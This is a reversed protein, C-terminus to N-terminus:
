KVIVFYYADDAVVNNESDILQAVICCSGTLTGLPVTNKGLQAKDENPKWGSDVYSEKGNDDVKKNYLRLTLKYDLVDISTDGNTADQGTTKVGVANVTICIDKGYECISMESTISVAPQETKEPEDFVIGGAIAAMVIGNGVSGSVASPVSILSINFVHKTAEVTDFMNSVLSLTVEQRGGSGLPIVFEGDSNQYYPKRNGAFDRAEIYADVPISNRPELVLAASTGLWKSSAASGEPYIVTVTQRTGGPAISMSAATVDTLTVSVENDTLEPANASATAVIFSTDLNPVIEAIVNTCDSFDVIVQYKLDFYAVNDASGAPVSFRNAATGMQVFGGTGYLPIVSEVGSARYSYYVPTGSSKDVLIVTAGEPLPCSFSLQPQAYVYHFNKVDFYATYASDRTITASNSKVQGFVESQEVTSTIAVKKRVGSLAIHLEIKSEVNKNTPIKEVSFSVGGDILQSPGVIKLEHEDPIDTDTQVATANYLYYKEQAWVNIILGRDTALATTEYELGDVGTVYIYVNGEYFLVDDARVWESANYNDTDNYRVYIYYNTYNTTLVLGTDIADEYKAYVEYPEGGDHWVMKYYLINSLQDTVTKIIIKDDKALGDTSKETTYTPKAPNPRDAKKIEFTVYATKDGDEISATYIGADINKKAPAGQSVLQGDVEVPYKEGTHSVELDWEPTPKKNTAGGTIKLKAKNEVGPTYVSDEATLTATQTCAECVCTRQLINTGSRTVTLYEVAHNCEEWQAVLTIERETTLNKVSAQDALYPEGEERGAYDWGAFQKGTIFFLNQPLNVTADTFYRKTEMSGRYSGDTGPDFYVYYGKLLWKAWLKLDNSLQYKTNVKYETGSVIGKDSDTWWGDIMYGDHEYLAPLITHLAYDEGEEKEVLIVTYQGTVMKLEPDYFNECYQVRIYKQKEPNAPDDSSGGGLRHDEFSGREDPVDVTMNGLILPNEISGYLDVHGAFVHITNNIIIKGHADGPNKPDAPAPDATSLIVTGGEVMMFNSKSKHTKGDGDGDEAYNETETMCYTNLHTESGGTIYVGGGSVTAFNGTLVPCDVIVYGGDYNHNCNIQNGQADFHEKNVGITVNIIESGNERGVVALAGGSTGANNESVTGSRIDVLADVDNASVYIGGGALAAENNDVKGGTMKYAGNNVAIGGGNQTATNNQITGGSVFVGDEASSAHVYAGGGNLAKNGSLEGFTVNLKGGGLYVGGGNGNLATCSTISGGGLDFTGNAMYVAGGSGNQSHCDTISGGSMDFTGAAMYVAGGNGSGTDETRCNKIEGATMTFKGSSMYIAGGNQTVTYCDQMSGDSMTFNGGGIFAVGGSNQAWNGKVTGGNLNFDMTATPDGVDIFIAGGSGALAKNGELTGSNMTVGSVVNGDNKCKCGVASGMWIAGGDINATNNKITSDEAITIGTTYNRKEFNLWMAVGGGYNATNGSIEAGEIILEMEYKTIEYTAIKSAYANFYIGGGSGDARNNIVKTDSDLTLTGKLSNQGNNATINPCAVASYPPEVAIAGGNQLATNGEFHCKEIEMTGTNLIAGGVTYSHNNTFICNKLIAKGKVSKWYIAGGGTGTGNDTKHGSSNNSFTSNQVLLDCRDAAYSRIVAGGRAQAKDENLVTCNDFLSYNIFLKSAAAKTEDGSEVYVQCMIGSSESATGKINTMSSDSMYLFRTFNGKPLRIMSFTKTGGNKIFTFKTLNCYQLYLNGNQLYITDVNQELGDKATLTIENDKNRGQIVLTGSGDNSDGVKFTASQSTVQMTAKDEAVVILRGDGKIVRATGNITATAGSAIKVIVTTESTSTSYFETGNSITSTAAVLLMDYVKNYVNEFGELYEGDFKGHILEESGSARWELLALDADVLTDVGTIPYTKEGIAIHDNEIQCTAAASSIPFIFLTLFITIVFCAAFLMLKSKSKNNEVNKM